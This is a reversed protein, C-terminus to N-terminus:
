KLMGRLAKLEFMEHGFVGVIAEDSRLIESQVRFPVKGTLANVLDSWRVVGGAPKTVEPGRATMNEPLEGEEDEFFDVDDPILVGHTRAIEKAQVVTRKVGGPNKRWQIRPSQGTIM